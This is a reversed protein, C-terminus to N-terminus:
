PAAKIWWQGVQGVTDGYDKLLQNPKWGSNSTCGCVNHFTSRTMACRIDDPTINECNFYNQLNYCQTAFSGPRGTISLDVSVTFDQKNPDITDCQLYCIANTRECQNYENKYGQVANFTEGTQYQQTGPLVQSSTGSSSGTSATSTDTTQPANGFTNGTTNASGSRNNTILTVPSNNNSTTTQPPPAAQFSTIGTTTTASTATTAPPTYTTTTSSSAATTKPWPTYAGFTSQSNFLTTVASGAPQQQQQVITEETDTFHFTTAAWLRHRHSPPVNDNAAAAFTTRDDCCTDQFARQATGCEEDVPRFIRFLEEALRECSIQMASHEDYLQVAENLM